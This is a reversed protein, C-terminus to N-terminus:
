DASSMSATAVVSLLRGWLVSPRFVGLSATLSCSRTRCCAPTPNIWQAQNAERRRQSPDGCDPRRHGGCGGTGIAQEITDLVLDTNMGSNHTPEDMSDPHALARYVASESPLQLGSLGLSRQRRDLGV